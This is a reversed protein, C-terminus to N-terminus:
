KKCGRLLYVNVMSIIWYIILNNINKIWSFIEGNADYLIIKLWLFEKRYFNSWNELSIDHIVKNIFLLSLLSKSELILLISGCVKFLIKDIIYLILKLPTIHYHFKMRSNTNDSNKRIRLLTYFFILKLYLCIIM